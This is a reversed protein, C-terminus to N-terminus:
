RNAFLFPHAKPHAKDFIRAVTTFPVSAVHGVTELVNGTLGFLGALIKTVPNGVRKVAAGMALIPSDCAASIGALHDLARQRVAPNQHQACAALGKVTDIAAQDGAHLRAAISEHMAVAQPNLIQTEAGVIQPM